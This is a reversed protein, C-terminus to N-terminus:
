NLEKKPQPMTTLNQKQLTDTNLQYMDFPIETVTFVIVRTVSPNQQKFDQEFKIANFQEGKAFGRSFTPQISATSNYVYGIMYFRDIAEAAQVVSCFLCIVLVVIGFFNKM